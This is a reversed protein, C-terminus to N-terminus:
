IHILSLSERARWDAEQALYPARVPHMPEPVPLVVESVRAGRDGLPTSRTAAVGRSADPLPAHSPGMPVDRLAHPAGRAGHVDPAGSSIMMSLRMPDGDGRPVDPVYARGSEDVPPPLGYTM